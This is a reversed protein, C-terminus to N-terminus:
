EVVLPTRVSQRWGAEVSGRLEELIPLELLNGNDDFSLCALLADYQDLQVQMSHEPRVEGFQVRYDCKMADYYKCILPREAQGYISCRGAQLHRCSTKISLSWVGNSIVLGVGPFGLCFRLYDFSSTHQPLAQPFVLTSCCFADCGNCPDRLEAFSRARTAPAEASPTLVLAQWQEIMPDSTPPEPAPDKAQDDHAAMLAVIDDWVPVSVIQRDDDFEIQATLLALRPRDIRVFESSDRTTFVRKYWCGYPNYNVCIEPQEPTNHISCTFTSRDLFRCPLAYYASWEGGASLGLEIRDFNLLYAAHDLELLSTVQFTTLPLHTCCPSTSCSKCPSELAEDIQLPLLRRGRDSEAISNWPGSSTM